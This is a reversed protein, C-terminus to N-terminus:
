KEENKEIKPLFKKSHAILFHSVNTIDFNRPFRFSAIEITSISMVKFTVYIEPLPIATNLNAHFIERLPFNWCCWLWIGLMVSDRILGNTGM